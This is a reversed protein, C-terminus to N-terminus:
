YATPLRCFCYCDIPSFNDCLCDAYPNDARSKRARRLNRSELIALTRANDRNGARMAFFGFFDGPLKANFMDFTVPACQDSAIVDIEDADDCGHNSMALHSQRREVM